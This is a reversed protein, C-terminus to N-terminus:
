NNKPPLVFSGEYFTYSSEDNANGSFSAWRSPLFQNKNNKKIDWENSVIIWHEAGEQKQNSYLPNGTFPNIPSDILGQTALYPVDANTMFEDNVTFGKANFDKVLLMSQYFEIDELRDETQSTIGLDRGHDSVIIIRTNDYVRNERLYDFWDGLKMLAAMNVHYHSVKFTNDLRITNTGDTITKGSEPYTSAISSLPTYSPEQLIVSEHTINSRLFMFTNQDSDNLKTMSELNSMTNYAKMFAAFASSVEQDSEEDEGAPLTRYLGDNYVLEQMSVPLTKMVSFLFFNRKRSSVTSLKTDFDEFRGEARYANVGQMDNYISIDPITKYGAYSPDIVSVAFSEKSFVTPLVKLAENHKDSLLEDSRLNLQLPTYDYGGYLAPAAFNTYAGYSITNSYFTFGDFQKKLDPNEEMIYPVFQSIGRDLMFVVVNQGNKSLTFEPFSDASSDLQLKTEASAQSIQFLNVGGMGGLALSAVILLSAIAKKYRKIVFWLGVFIVAVIAVNILQESLSFFFGDTYNLDPSVIGLNTGFFM